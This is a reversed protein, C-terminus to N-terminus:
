FCYFVSSESQLIIRRAQIDAQEAEVAATGAISGMGLEMIVSRMM